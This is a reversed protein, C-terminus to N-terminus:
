RGIHQLLEAIVYNSGGVFVSDGKGADALAKECAEVVSDTCYGDLGHAVAKDHLASAELRRHCSPATFYFSADPVESAVLALVSDVDKDGVFGIVVHLKGPLMRLQRSIYAWGGPNHGTDCVVLPSSSLTTWRGTLGTLRSVGSFGAAVASDPVAVGNRRLLALVALITAGNAAQYSGTLEGTFDGFQSSHYRMGDPVAVCSYAPDSEDAFVIPSGKARADSVFTARVAGEAEGVVVPIGPKIIGAKEAAIKEPTDGLLDTHDLSINTIVSVLPDVINTSDLRGGLGVEVITFDLNHSAFYEFAMVTTLEFFSPEIDRGLRRFREVFDVVESKGIMHGDIRIRERFDVLHPSTFLGVRYGASQLVAALTHATSGKGNTGAVHIVGNLKRHPSGFLASLGLVRELGPKYASAGEKEFVPLSSFLFEVASGYDM